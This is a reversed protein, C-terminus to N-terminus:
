KKRTVQRERPKISILDVLHPKKEVYHRIAGTGEKEIKPRISVLANKKSPESGLNADFIYLYPTGNPTTLLKAAFNVKNAIVDDLTDYFDLVKFDRHSLHILEVGKEELVAQARVGAAFRALFEKETEADNGALLQQLLGEAEEYVPLAAARISASGKKAVGINSNTAPNIATEWAGKHQQSLNVGFLLSFLGTLQEWTRGIQGLQETAGAKLSIKGISIEKGNNLVKVDVKTGKQNSTGDALVEIKNPVNNIFWELTQDLVRNSNAYAVASDYLDDVSDRKEANMLDSFNNKSLGVVLTVQDTASGDSDPVPEFTLSKKVSKKRGEAAPQRNLDELVKIVMAKTVPEIDDASSFRAALAAALIGEAVDGRNAVTAGVSAGQLLAIEVSAGSPSTIRANIVNGEEERTPELKFSDGALDSFDKWAKGRVSRNGTNTLEVGPNEKKARVIKKVEINPFRQKLFEVFQSLIENQESTALPGETTQEPEQEQPEEPEQEAQPEEEFLVDRVAEVLYDKLYEVDNERFVSTKKAM